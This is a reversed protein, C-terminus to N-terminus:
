LVEKEAKWEECTMKIFKNDIEDRYQTTQYQNDERAGMMIASWGYANKPLDTNVVVCHSAATEVPKADLGDMANVVVGRMGLAIIHIARLSLECTRLLSDLAYDKGKREESEDADFHLRHLLIIALSHFNVDHECDRGRRHTIPQELVQLM